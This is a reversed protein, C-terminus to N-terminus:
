PCPELAAIAEPSGLARVTLDRLHWLQRKVEEVEHLHLVHVYLVAPDDRLDIPMSGPAMAMFNALTTIVQESCAEVPVAVVGIRLRSRRAVVERILMLNSAALQRVLFVGLRVVPVVRVSVHAVRRREAPVLWLILVTAVVAGSLVNAASWTGWLLVWALTLGAGYAVTGFPARWRATV